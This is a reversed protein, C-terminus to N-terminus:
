KMVHIVGDLLTRTSPLTLKRSATDLVMWGEGRTVGPERVSRANEDHKGKGDQRRWGSIELAAVPVAPVVGNWSAGTVRFAPVM